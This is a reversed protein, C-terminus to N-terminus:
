PAECAFVSVRSKLFLVNSGQVPSTQLLRAHKGHESCHQQAQHEAILFQHAPHEIRVEEADGQVACGAVFALAVFALAIVVAARMVSRSVTPIWLMTWTLM